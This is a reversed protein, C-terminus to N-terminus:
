AKHTPCTENLWQGAGRSVAPDNSPIPVAPEHSMKYDVHTGCGQGDLIHEGIIMNCHPDQVQRARM